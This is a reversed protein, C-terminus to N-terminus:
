PSPAGDPDADPDPDGLGDELADVIEALLGTLYGYVERAAADPDDARVRPPDDESVDLNTGLVLRLDNVARMWASLGALDLETEGTAATMADLAALRRQLLEDRALVQYERDREPQDHYATPFLRRVSPDDTTEVLLSRLDRALGVLLGREWDQIAVAYRNPAVRRIRAQRRFLGM